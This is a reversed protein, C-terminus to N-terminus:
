KSGYSGGLPKRGPKGSNAINRQRIVLEAMDIADAYARNVKGTENLVGATRALNQIGLWILDLQSIKMGRAAFVAATVVTIAKKRPPVLGGILVYGERCKKKAMVAAAGDFGDDFPIREGHGRSGVAHVDSPVQVKRSRGEECPHRLTVRVM